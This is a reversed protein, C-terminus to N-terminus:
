KSSGAKGFPLGTVYKNAKWGAIHLHAVMEESACIVGDVFADVMQRM